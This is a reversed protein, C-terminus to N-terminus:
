RVYLSFAGTSAGRVFITSVRKETDAAGGGAGTKGSSIGDTEALTLFEEQQASPMRWRRRQPQTVM